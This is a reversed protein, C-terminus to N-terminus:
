VHHRLLTLLPFPVQALCRHRRVRVRHTDLVQQGRLPSVIGRTLLLTVRRFRLFLIMFSARPLRPPRLLSHFAAFSVTSRPQAYAYRSRRALFRLKRRNHIVRILAAARSFSRDYLWSTLPRLFAPTSTLRLTSASRATRSASAKVFSASSALAAFYATLPAGASWAAARAANCCSASARMAEAPSPSVSWCSLVSYRPRLAPRRVVMRFTKGVNPASSRLPSPPFGLSVLASRPRRHPPAPARSQPERGAARARSRVMGARAIQRPALWGTVSAM